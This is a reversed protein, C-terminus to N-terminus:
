MLFNIFYRSSKILFRGFFNWDYGFYRGLSPVIFGFLIIFGMGLNDAALYKQIKGNNCWGLLIKSGDLPPIPLANFVALLVNFIIMNMLFLSVMGQLAPNSIYPAASLLISSLVALLINTIIGASAVLVVGLRPMKLADFNVPVPKAWGFVFGAKGLILMAPLIITGFLDIHKLPNPSLRGVRKATDDGLLYAAYGHAMEHLIIAILIPLLSIITALNM